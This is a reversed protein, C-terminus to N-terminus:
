LSMLVFVSRQQARASAALRSIEGLFPVIWDPSGDDMQWEETAAWARGYRDIDALSFSALSSELLEPLRIIWPGDEGADRVLMTDLLPLREEFPVGEICCQLQVIKVPDVRKAHVVHM